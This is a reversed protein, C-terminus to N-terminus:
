FKIKVKSCEPPGYAAPKHHYPAPAYPAPAPAYPAPPAGYPAPAPHYPAPAYPAPAPSYAYPAPSPSHYVPTVHYAPEPPGYAPPAPTYGYPVDADAAVLALCCVVQLVCINHLPIQQSNKTLVKDFSSLRGGRLIGQIPPRKSRVLSQQSRYGM